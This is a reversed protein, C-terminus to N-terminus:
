DGRIEGREMKARVEDERKWRNHAWLWDEPHILIDEELKKKLLKSYDYLVQTSYTEKPPYIVDACEAVFTNGDRYFRIHYVPLGSKLSLVAPMPSVEAPRGLFDMFLKSAGVSQDALIAVMAGRKLARFTSFFPNYSSIMTSGLKGRLEKIYDNVYKNNQPYAVFTMKQAKVGMIYGLVEWNAFHGLMLIVGKGEANDKFFQECNVFRFRKSLEEQSLRIAKAFETIIRGINSWSKKAIQECEKLSKNPFVQQIDKVSRKYRNPMIKTLLLGINGGVKVIFNEPLVGLLVMLSKLGLYQVYDFFHKM